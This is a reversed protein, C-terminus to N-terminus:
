AAQKSREPPMLLYEELAVVAAQHGQQAREHRIRLANADAESQSSADWGCSKKRCVTLWVM